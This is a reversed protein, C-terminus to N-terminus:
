ETKRPPQELQRVEREPLRVPDRIPLGLQVLEIGSVLTETEGNPSLEVVIKGASVKAHCEQIASRLIGGAAQRPSYNKAITVGQVRVDFDCPTKGDPDCFALRVVYEGNEIGSIECTRLGRVGSAAVWPWGRGGEIFMSHRYFTEPKEPRTEIRTTPSPCNTDPKEVWLTGDRERRVGPAGFNVGLRHFDQGYSVLGWATWEEHLESMKRLALGVPLPYSCTCGEYFFPVNLVGCAPIVSNTCGSRPGSIHFTGSERVLDYVAATASRMTYLKGYDIGGDCGYSKPFSRKEREGTLPNIRTGPQPPAPKWANKQTPPRYQNPQADTEDGKVPTAAPLAKALREGEAATLVRGTYVNSYVAPLLEYGGLKTRKRKGHSWEKPRSVMVGRQFKPQPSRKFHGLTDDFWLVGFPGVALEDHTKAFGGLYDAAGPLDVRQVIVADNTHSIKSGPLELSTKGPACLTGGYPQLSEFCARLSADDLSSRETTILSAFYPPRNSDSTTGEIIAVRTGYVGQDIWRERLIATRTRDDDFAVISFRTRAILTEVLAGDELGIVAAWGDRADTTALITKAFEAPRRPPHFRPGIRAGPSAASDAGLCYLTGRRDVVFLRGAAVLASHIEGDAGEIKEDFSLKKGALTIRRRLGPTGTGKRLNDEHTERNVDSDFQVRGRRAAKGGERDIAAFWGGPYRSRTPLSFETRRGTALDFRAPYATGCPVILEDEDIVLYGQPTLGGFGQGNHPQGGYVFGSDDNVWITEGSTADLCYVFVGEFPWVGAAFYVRGDQAVVGGRVPWLSILRRNGLVLRESPAARFRWALAGSSADLCYLYGDDSGAYIKGGHFAPAFRVPGGTTFRWELEGDEVRFARISDDVPSGVYVLGAAVIPEYGADFALRANRFAPNPRGLDRKWSLPLRSPLADPSAATRGADRRWM